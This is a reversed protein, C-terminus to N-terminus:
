LRDFFFFSFFFYALEFFSLLKRSDIYKASYVKKGVIRNLIYFRKFRYIRVSTFHSSIIKVMYIYMVGEGLWFYILRM